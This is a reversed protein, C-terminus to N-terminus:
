QQTSLFLRGTTAHRLGAEFERGEPLKRCWLWSAKVVRSRRREAFHHLVCLFFLVRTEEDAALVSRGYM